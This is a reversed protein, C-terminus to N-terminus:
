GRRTRSVGRDQNYLLLTADRRSDSSGAGARLRSRACDGGPYWRNSFGLINPATPMVDLTLDDEHQWRCIVETDEHFGLARLRKAITYYEAVSATEVIVDVDRTARIGAAAPDTILLGTTCGGVFVFEDRLDGLARAGRILLERNVDAM